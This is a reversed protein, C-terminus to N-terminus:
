RRIRGRERGSGSREPFAADTTTAAGSRVAPTSRTSLIACVAARMWVAELGTEPDRPAPCGAEILRRRIAASDLGEEAHWRFILKVAIAEAPEIVLRTRWRPHRGSPSVRVPRPQYGYPVAEKGFTGQHHAPFAHGGQAAAQTPEPQPQVGLPRLDVAEVLEVAGIQDREHYGDVLCPLDFVGILRDARCEAGADDGGDCHEEAVAREGLPRVHGGPRQQGVSVHGAPDLGDRPEDGFVLEFWDHVVDAGQTTRQLPARQQDGPPATGPAALDAFQVQVAQIGVGVAYRTQPQGGALRELFAGDWQVVLSGVSDAVQGLQASFLGVAANEIGVQPMRHPVQKQAVTGERAGVVQEGVWEGLGAGLQRDEVAVPLRGDVGVPEPVGQASLQGLLAGPHLGDHLDEPVLARAHRHGVGVDGIRDHEGVVLSDQLGAGGDGAWEGVRQAGTPEVLFGQVPELGVEILGFQLKAAAQAQGLFARTFAVEVETAGLEDGGRLVRRSQPRPQTGLPLQGVVGLGAAPLAFDLAVLAGGVANGAEEVFKAFGLGGVSRRASCIPPVTRLAGAVIAMHSGPVAQSVNLLAEEDVREFVVDQGTHETVEGDGLLIPRKGFKGLDELRQDVSAPDFHASVRGPDGFAPRVSQDGASDYRLAINRQHEGIWGIPLVGLVAVPDSRDRQDLCLSPQLDAPTLWVLFWWRVRHSKCLVWRLSDLYLLFVRERRHAAGVDSARVSIWMCDYGVTTLDALVRHMGGTRWRLAAVNECVVLTSRLQRIAEVVVRWLGSRAGNDIGARRGAASIDQCPWGATLVDVPEVSRWDVTTVDGHNPVDPLARKLVTRVHRDSDAVWAIRGGGLAARVGADLGGYGTFLSGIALEQAASNSRRRPRGRGHRAGAALQGDVRSQGSPAAAPLGTGGGHKVNLCPFGATLVEVPEVTTWDIARVDGLNPVGRLCAALIQAIHPDPDACWAIRGGGLATLVGLDLGGYGTCVSGVVPGPSGMAMLAPPTAARVAGAAARAAVVPAAAPHRGSGRTVPRPRTSM